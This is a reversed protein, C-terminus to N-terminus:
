YYGFIYSTVGTKDGSMESSNTNYILNFENRGKKAMIIDLLVMSSPSDLHDNGLELIRAYNKNVILSITETDNMEAQQSTLDHSFDVAAIILHNDSIYRSIVESAKNIEGFDKENVLVPIVRAQPFYNSIYPIPTMVSHEHSVLDNNIGFENHKSLKSIVEIDPQVLGFETKWASDATYFLKEGDATHNPGLLIITEIDHNEISSFFSSLYKAAFGHHPIIAGRITRDFEWKVKESEGKVFLERNFFNDTGYLKEATPNFDIQYQEQNSYNYILVVLILSLLITIRAILPLRIRLNIM